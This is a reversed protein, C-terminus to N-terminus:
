HGVLNYTFPDVTYRYRAYQYRLWDLSIVGNLGYHSLVYVGFDFDIALPRIIWPCIFMDPM